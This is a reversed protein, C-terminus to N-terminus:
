TWFGVSGRQLAGRGAGGWGDGQVHLRQGGRLASSLVHLAPPFYNSGARERGDGLELGGWLGAWSSFVANM